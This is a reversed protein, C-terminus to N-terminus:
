RADGLRSFCFRNRNRERFIKSCSETAFLKNIQKIEVAVELGWDISAMLVLSCVYAEESAIM